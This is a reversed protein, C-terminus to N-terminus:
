PSLVSRAHEPTAWVIEGPMLELHEVDERRLRATMREGMARLAYDVKASVRM